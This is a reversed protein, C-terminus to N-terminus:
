FQAASDITALGARTESNDSYGGFEGYVTFDQAFAYVRRGGVLGHGVVVGDGPVVGKDMGFDRCRHSVLADVERFTDGDFLLGIRERATLSGRAHQREIRAPGGGLFSDAKAGDLRRRFHRKVTSPDTEIASHQDGPDSESPPLVHHVTAPRGDLGSPPSSHVTRSRRCPFVGTATSGAAAMISAPRRSGGRLCSPSVLSVVGVRGGAPGTIAGRGSLSTAIARRM